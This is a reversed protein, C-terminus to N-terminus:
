KHLDLASRLPGPTIPHKPIAPERTKMIKAQDLLDVIREELEKGKSGQHKAALKQLHKLHALLEPWTHM